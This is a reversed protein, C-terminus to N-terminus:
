ESANPKNQLLEQYKLQVQAEVEKEKLEQIRLNANHTILAIAQRDNSEIETKASDLQLKGVNVAADHQMKGVRGQSEMIRSDSEKSDQAGKAADLQTQIPIVQAEMQTKQAQAMLNQIEAMTKQTEPPPAANPDPQPLLKIVVDEDLGMSELYYKTTQYPDLGPISLLTQAITVRQMQTAAAPDVVPIIDMKITDFDISVDALPDDLAEQYVNNDLYERNLEFVKKYEASLSLFLRKTIANYIKLGQEIMAMTTTAPVNQTEGKGKLIDTNSVLDKSASILLGLLQFLTPSPEKTPLNMVYDQLKSMGSVQVVKFEGGKFSMDGPKMRLRSDIFGGQTNNLTGADVLQNLLSNITCNLPLLLTGLGISYFGGDPSMIFHFATYYQKAEISIVQNKKNLKVKDFRNVIALIQLSKRHQTVIYPEEYGDEDLDLYCCQELVEEDDSIQTPNNTSTGFLLDINVDRYFGLRIRSIIDNKSMLLIHTIRKATELSQINYNVVIRDPHCLDSCVEGNVNDYYTKKFVTGLVPLMHLMKDVGSEWGSMLNLLQFSMFRGVRLAQKYKTDDKDSGVVTARVVKDNQIIEPYERAAFDITAQTILPYKIDAADKWPYTKREPIQKAIKMAKENSEKWSKRSKEDFLYGDNIKQAIALLEQDTLLEAINESKRLDELKLKM